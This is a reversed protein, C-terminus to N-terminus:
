SIIITKSPTYIYSNYHKALADWKKEIEYMKRNNQIIGEPCYCKTPNMLFYQYQTFEWKTVAFKPLAKKLLSYEKKLYKLYRDKDLTALGLKKKLEPHKEYVRTITDFKANEVLRKCKREYRKIKRQINSLHKTM